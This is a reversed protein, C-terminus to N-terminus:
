GSGARYPKSFIIWWEISLDRHIVVMSDFRHGNHNTTESRGKFLATSEISLGNQGTLAYNIMNIAAITFDSVQAKRSTGYKTPAYWM